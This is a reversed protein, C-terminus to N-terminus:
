GLKSNGVENGGSGKDRSSIQPQFIIELQQTLNQLKAEMKAESESIAEQLLSKLEALMNQDDM